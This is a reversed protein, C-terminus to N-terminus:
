KNWTNKAYVGGITKQMEGFFNCPDKPGPAGEPHYQVSVAFKESDSVMEVAGDNADRQIVELPTGFLSEELVQYNHNHSTIFCRDEEIVSHNTGHHGYLMKETSAGLAMSLVQHGLCVGFIPIKGYNRRILERVGDLSEDSPDGPGNSLFIAAYSGNIAHLPFDFPIVHLSAIKSVQNILSIKTGMDVFLVEENTGNNLHYDTTTAFRRLLDRTNMTGFEIEPNRTSSLIGRMNGKKRILEIIKRTDVGKIGPVGSNHLLMDLERFAESNLGATEKIIVGSASIEKSQPISRRLNYTIVSPFAFLVIQGGYSPDTLVELYGTPSTTFILEGSVDISAGFAEGEFVNGDELLLYRKL